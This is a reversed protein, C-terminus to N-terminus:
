LCGSNKKNAMVFAEYNPFQKPLQIKNNPSAKEYERNSDLSKDFAACAAQQNKMEQYTWGMGLYVNTLADYKKNEAFIDRAKEFYEIAKSYRNDVSVTKDMFGNERYYKQWRRVTDSRFFQAYMRYADALGLQDNNAQYIDIAERILREAPLPRNQEGILANADALKAHPNNSATVFMAACGTLLLMLVVILTMKAKM